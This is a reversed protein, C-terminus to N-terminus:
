TCTIIPNAQQVSTEGLNTITKSHKYIYECALKYIKTKLDAKKEETMDEPVNFEYMHCDLDWELPFGVKEMFGDLWSKRLNGERISESATEMFARFDCEISSFIEEFMKECFNLKWSNGDFYEIFVDKKNLKRINHNEPHNPHFHKKVLYECMGQSTQKICKAMFKEFNPHNTVYTVDEKGFANITINNHNIVGNNIQNITTTVNRNGTNHAQLETKLNSIEKKLYEVDEEEDILRQQCFKNHRSKSSRHKFHKGCFNCSQERQTASVVSDQKVTSVNSSVNSVNSSVNERVAETYIDREQTVICPTLRKM